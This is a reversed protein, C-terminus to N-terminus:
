GNIEVEQFITEVLLKAGAMSGNMRQYIMEVAKDCRAYYITKELGLKKLATKLPLCYVWRAYVCAKLGQPLGEIAQDLMIKNLKAGSVGDYAKPGSNRPTDDISYDGATFAQYDALWKRIVKRSLYGEIRM